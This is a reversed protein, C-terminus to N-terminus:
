AFNRIVTFVKYGLFEAISALGTKLQNQGNVPESFQVGASEIAGVCAATSKDYNYGGAYDSGALNYGKRNDNLWFCAFVRDAGDKPYYVRLDIIERLEKGDLVIVKYGDSNNPNKRRHNGNLKDCQKEKIIAKM